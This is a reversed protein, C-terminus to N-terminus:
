FAERSEAIHMSYPLYAWVIRPNNTQEKLVEHTKYRVTGPIEDPQTPNCAPHM